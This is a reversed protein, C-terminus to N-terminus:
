TGEREYRFTATRTFGITDGRFLKLLPFNTNDADWRYKVQVTVKGKDCAPACGATTTSDYITIQADTIAPGGFANFADKVKQKIAATNATPSNFVAAYRGGERVATSLSNSTFYLRTLEVMCWIVLLFLPLAFAMEVLVAGKERKWKGVGRM